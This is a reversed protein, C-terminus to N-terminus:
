DIHRGVGGEGGRWEVCVRRKLGGLVRVFLERYSLEGQSIYRFMKLVSNM